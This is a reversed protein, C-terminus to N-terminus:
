KDDLKISYTNLLLLLVQYMFHRALDAGLLWIGIINVNKRQWKKGKM